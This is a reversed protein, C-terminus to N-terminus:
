YIFDMRKLIFSLISTNDLVIRADTELGSKILFKKGKRDQFEIRDIDAYVVYYLSNNSSQRIDSDISTIQGYAGKYEFFPFAPLRYKVKQGIELRGIDKPKVQLEVRFNEKDDPVINLVTKEAEIYDGKNLSSVEQVFGDVPAYVKLYQYKSDLAKLEDAIKEAELKNQELQFYLNSIFETKYSQLENMAYEYLLKKQKINNEIRALEPQNREQDYNQFAIDRQVSLKEKTMLYNEFKFYVKKNDLPILNKDADYSKILLDAEEVLQLCNNKEIVLKNKSALFADENLAYLLSGKKVMAGPRYNIETIEGGIINKVTSINEQTKILGSAKVVEDVSCFVILIFSVCIILIITWFFIFTEKPIELLFFEKSLKMKDEHRFQKLEMM